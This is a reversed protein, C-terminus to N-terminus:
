RIDFNDILRQNEDFDAPRNNIDIKKKQLFLLAKQIDLLKKNSSLQRTGNEVIPENEDTNNNTIGSIFVRHKINNEHSM